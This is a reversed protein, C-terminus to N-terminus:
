DWAEMCINEKDHTHGDENVVFVDPKLDKMDDLFDLIGSGRNIKVQHVCSLAKLMYLREEESNVTM